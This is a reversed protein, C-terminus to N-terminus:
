HKTETVLLTMDLLQGKSTYHRDLRWDRILDLALLFTDYDLKYLDQLTFVQDAELALILRALTETSESGPNSTMYKRAKKIATM